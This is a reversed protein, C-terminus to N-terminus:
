YLLYNVQVKIRSRQSGAGQLLGIFTTNNKKNTQKRAKGKGEKKQEPILDKPYRRTWDSKPQNVIKPAAHVISTSSPAPVVTQSHGM